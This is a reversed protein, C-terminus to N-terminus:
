VLAPTACLLEEARALMADCQREPDFTAYRDAFGRAADAFRSDTLLAELAPRVAETQGAAVKLGVGM